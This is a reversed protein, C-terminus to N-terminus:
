VEAQEEGTYWPYSDDLENYWPEETTRGDRGTIYCRVGRAADDYTTVDIRPKLRMAHCPTPM